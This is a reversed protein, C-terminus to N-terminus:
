HEKTIYVLNKQCNKCAGGAGDMKSLIKDCFSCRPPYVFDIAGNWANAAFSLVEKM